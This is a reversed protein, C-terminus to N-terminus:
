AAAGKALLDALQATILAGTADELWGYQGGANAELFTWGDPGIVFDLAGYVLGMDKMLKRVGAAVPEPPEILEYRLNDYDTRWDVYGSASGAHIAVATIKEGVVVVRAEGSKPVWRQFLHTTQDIGRLDELDAADLVRTYSLKRGGREVISNSGLVKTVTSGRGAFQRVSVPENTIVTNAVRLGCRQALALQVPKYAADALRAPHNVWLVSLSTLVGGLGYKAELNAFAREANTMEAPFTYAKPSRYWVATIGGLEITRYPTRLQGSWRGGTLEASVSLQGPFWATDVRHVIADRDRLARVMADASADREDALILVSM